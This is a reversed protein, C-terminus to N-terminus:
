IWDELLLKEIRSFHRQNHSVLTLDHALATAAIWLDADDLRQGRRELEAKVQGFVQAERVTLPLITLYGVLRHVPPLYRSPNDSKAAGYLLEGICVTSSVLEQRNAAAFRRSVESHGRLVFVLM